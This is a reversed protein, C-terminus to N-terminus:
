TKVHAGQEDMRTEQWKKRTKVSLSASIKLKSSTTSAGVSKAGKLARVWLIGRVLDKYLDSNAKRIDLVKSTWVLTRTIARNRGYLVRLVIEHDRCSLSVETKVDWIKRTQLFLIWHCVDEQWSRWWMNLPYASVTLLLHFGQSLSHQQQFALWCGSSLFWEQTTLKSKSTPVEVRLSHWFHSSFDM